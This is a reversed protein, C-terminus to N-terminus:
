LRSREVPYRWTTESNVGAQWLALARRAANHAFRVERRPASRITIGRREIFRRLDEVRERMFDDRRFRYGEYLGKTLLRSDTIITKGHGDELAHGRAAIFATARIAAYVEAVNASPAKTIELAVVQGDEWAVALAAMNTQHDFAADVVLARETSSTNM